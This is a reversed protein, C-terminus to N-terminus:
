QGEASEKQAPVYEMIDGPQCDLIECLRIITSTNVDSNKVLRDVITPSIGQKRLDYKKVGKNQMLEFLRKYSVPM